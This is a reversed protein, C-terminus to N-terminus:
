NTVERAYNSKDIEFIFKTNEKFKYIYPEKNSTVINLDYEFTEKNFYIVEFICILCKANGENILKRIGFQEKKSNILIKNNLLKEVILGDCRNIIKEIENISIDSTRNNSQDKRKYSHKTNNLERLKELVLEDNFYLNRLHGKNNIFDKLNKM